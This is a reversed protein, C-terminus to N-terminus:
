KRRMQGFESRKNGWREGEEGEAGEREGRQQM